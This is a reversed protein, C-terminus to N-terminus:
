LSRFVFSSCSFVRSWCVSREDPDGLGEPFSVSRTLRCAVRCCLDRMSAAAVAAAARRIAVRPVENKSSCGEWVDGGGATM